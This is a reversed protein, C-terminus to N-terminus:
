RNRPISEEAEILRKKIGASFPITTVLSLIVGYLVTMLALAAGWGIGKSDRFNVLMAVTGVM